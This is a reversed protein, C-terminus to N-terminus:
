TLTYTWEGVVEFEINEIDELTKIKHNGSYGIFERNDSVRVYECKLTVCYSGDARQKLNKCHLTMDKVIVDTCNDYDGYEIRRIYANKDTDCGLMEKLTIKKPKEYYKIM